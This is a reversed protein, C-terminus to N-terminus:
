AAPRAGGGHRPPYRYVVSPGGFIEIAEAPEAGLARAVRISAANAPSIISVVEARGLVNRAYALAAAAGERAYGRGWAPRALAYGVELAPWGEPEYCGIRGLFAGTARGEAAWLGFGRLAWHGALMALQRWAEARALPLGGGLHRTVAPDAMMALDPEADRPESGRLVLRETTLHPVHTM